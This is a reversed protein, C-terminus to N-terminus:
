GVLIGNFGSDAGIIDTQSTGNNQHITVHATDNTDMDALVSTAMTLYDVDATFNPDIITVYTLNSTTITFIYFASATDVTGLYVRANLQYKGTVPATFTSSAFDANVDYVETGFAITNGNAMDSQTGSIIALFAPQAPKTVAGTGDIQMAVNTSSFITLDNDTGGIAGVTTGDRQFIISHEAGADARSNNIELPVGYASNAELKAASIGTGNVAVVHLQDAPANTNIGVRDTAGNVFFANALGNGEVRFDLDAGGENFVTETPTLEMRSTAATGAVMTNIYFRSDEVGNSADVIQVNIEAFTTLETADNYGRHLIASLFDANAGAEGPNRIFDLRPGSNADTDTSTLTLQATNDATTIIMGDSTTIVGDVQLTSAMDVAGDIDVVDLNTTGDVDVNGSIDLEVATLVGTSSLSMKTAAAESAGVMFDIATANADAAFDGESRAQIAASVLIADTGTGEDPAQFQIKGLVDNAAIDAESTQLTLLTPKNDGTGTSKITVGGDATKETILDVRIESM